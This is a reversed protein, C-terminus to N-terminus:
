SLPVPREFYLMGDYVIEHYPDTSQFGFSEYFNQLGLRAETDLVVTTFVGEKEIVGLVHHMLKKAYGQRQHTPLVYLRKIEAKELQYAHYAVCGVSQNDIYLIFANAHPNQAYKEIEPFFDGTYFNPTIQYLEELHNKFSVFLDNLCAKLHPNQKLSQIELVSWVEM